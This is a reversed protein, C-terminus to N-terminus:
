ARSVSPLLCIAPTKWLPRVVAFLVLIRLFLAAPLWNEGYLLLVIDPAAIFIALALPLALMIILWVVLAVSRQLRAVDDQLRAYTFFAIRATLAALLTSPWQATRYARDYFGLVGVGVFTMIFFDDLRTLLITALFGIGVTGSYRLFHRALARDLRWRVQWVRHGMRWLLWLSGVLQLMYYTYVHAILSWVGAGQLALWIAPIYGLAFAVFQMAGVSGFHLEKELLMRAVSGLSEIAVAVALVLSVQLVLDGYEVFQGFGLWLLLPVALFPLVVGAGITLLSLSLYTGLAQEDPEQYIAYAHNLARALDPPVRLLEAFLTGRC